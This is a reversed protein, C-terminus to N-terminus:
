LDDFKDVFEKKDTILQIQGEEIAKVAEEALLKENLRKKNM